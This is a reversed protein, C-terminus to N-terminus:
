YSVQHAIHNRQDSNKRFVVPIIRDLQPHFHNVAVILSWFRVRLSISRDLLFLQDWGLPFRLFVRSNRSDLFSSRYIEIVNKLWESHSERSVPLFPDFGVVFLKGFPSSYAVTVVLFVDVGHVFFSFCVVVLLVVSCSCLLM